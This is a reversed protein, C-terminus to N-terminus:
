NTTHSESIISNAIVTFAFKFKAADALEIRKERFLKIQKIVNNFTIYIDKEKFKWGNIGQEIIHQINKKDPLIIPLGTGMAEYHTIIHTSWYGFDAVHYLELLEAHSLFSMTIFQHAYKKSSIYKKLKQSYVDDGFGTIIYKLSKGENNLTDVIDIIKELNKFPTIRTATILVIDTEFYCLEKRRKLRIKENFYFEEDDFGL